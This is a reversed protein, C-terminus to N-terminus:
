PNRRRRRRLLCVAGALLTAMAAPEPTVTLEFTGGLTFIQEGVDDIFGDPMSAITMTGHYGFDEPVKLTMTVLTGVGFTAGGTANALEIDAYNPEYDGGALTDVQITVPLDGLAPYSTDAPLGTQFPSAWSYGLYELGPRDFWTQFVASVCAAGDDSTLVMDLDFTGGTPVTLHDAGGSRPLLTYGASGISGGMATSVLLLLSGICALRAM